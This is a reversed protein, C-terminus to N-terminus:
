LHHNLTISRKVIRPVGSPFCSLSFQFAAKAKLCHETKYSYQSLDPGWEIKTESLVPDVAPLRSICLCILILLSLILPTMSATNSSRM